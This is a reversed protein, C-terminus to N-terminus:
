NWALLSDREGGRASKLRQHNKNKKKYFCDMWLVTVRLGQNGLQRWSPSRAKIRIHRHILWTTRIEQCVECILCVLEWRWGVTWIVKYSVMFYQNFITFTPAERMWMAGSPGQWGPLTHNQHQMQVSRAGNQRWCSLHLPIQAAALPAQHQRPRAPYQPMPRSYEQDLLLQPIQMPQTFGTGPDQLLPRRFGLESRQQNTQTSCGFSLFNRIPARREQSIYFPNPYLHSQGKIQSPKRTWSDTPPQARTDQAGRKPWQSKIYHYWRRRRARRRVNNPQERAPGQHPQDVTGQVEHNRRGRSESRGMSLPAELRPKKLLRECFLHVMSGHVLSVLQWLVLFTFIPFNKM